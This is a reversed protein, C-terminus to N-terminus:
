DAKPSVNWWSVFLRSESGEVLGDKIEGYTSVKLIKSGDSSSFETICHGDGSCVDLEPLEVCVACQQPNKSCVNEFDDGIVNKKCEPHAKPKWNGSIVSKRLDGYPMGEKFGVELKHIDVSEPSPTITVNGKSAAGLESVESRKSNEVQSVSDGIAKQSSQSESTSGQSKAEQKCAALSFLSVFALSFFINRLIEMM